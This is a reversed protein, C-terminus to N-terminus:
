HNRRDFGTTPWLVAKCAAVASLAQLSGLKQRGPENLKMKAIMLFYIYTYKKAHKLDAKGNTAQKFAVYASFACMLYNNRRTSM